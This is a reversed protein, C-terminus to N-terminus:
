GGLEIARLFLFPADRDSRLELTVTSGRLDYREPLQRDFPQEDFSRVPVREVFVEREGVLLRIEVEGAQNEGAFATGELRLRAAGDRLQRQRVSLLPLSARDGPYVWWRQGMQRDGLLTVAYRRGNTRPDSGDSSTFMFSGEPQCSQGPEGQLVRGCFLEPAVALKGDESLRLPTCRGCDLRKGIAVSSLEDLGPLAARFAGRANAPEFDLPFRPLEGQVVARSQEAMVLFSVVPPQMLEESGVLDVTEGDARVALWRVLLWPGGEPSAISVSWPGKPTPLRLSGQLWREGAPELPLALGDVTVTVGEGSGEIPELGVLLEYEAAPSPWGAFDLSLATGPYAFWGETNGMRVPMEPALGLEYRRQELPPEAQPGPSVFVRASQPVYAGHCAGALKGPWNLHELPQGDEFVVLPSAGVGASALATDSLAIFDKTVALFRCPEGDPDPGLELLQPPPVTGRLATVFDLALPVRNSEFPGEEMIGRERLAAALAPTFAKSGAHSLHAGDDFLQPGGDWGSMDVYAAGRENLLSVFEAEVLPDVSMRAQTGPMMPMRVFVVKSGYEEALDLLDPVFSAAVVSGDAELRVEREHEVVPIVRRHLSMDVAGDVQFVRELAPAAVAEGRTLLDQSRDGHLLGVSGARLWDAWRDQVKGRRDRLRQLWPNPTERGFVKRYVVPEYPGAHDVLSRQSLESGLDTQFLVKPAMGVVVAHPRHGEGYVRNKLFLYWNAPWTGSEWAKGVAVPREALGAALLQQDIGRAVLSNGVVVVEPQAEAMRTEMLAAASSLEADEPALLRSLGLGLVLAPLLVALVGALLRHPAPTPQAPPTM